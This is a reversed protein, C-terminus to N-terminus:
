PEVLWDSFAELSAFVPTTERSVLNSDLTQLGKGTTVLAGRIGMRQAALIDTATDGVMWSTDPNLGLKKQIIQLLGTHPKRCGCHDQPHHPCFTILEIEGGAYIVAERLKYHIAELTELTFLGRALGSQNTAIAIQYGAKTLKAIARASGTIELWEAPSKIYHESDHNIVGDRDLIITKTNL